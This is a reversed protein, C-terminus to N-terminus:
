YSKYNKMKDKKDNLESFFQKYSMVAELVYKDDGVDVIVTGYGLLWGLFSTNFTISDIRDYNIEIVENKWGLWKTLILQLSHEKLTYKNLKEGKISKIWHQSYTKILSPEKWAREKDNNKQLGM